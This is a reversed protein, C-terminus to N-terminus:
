GVPIGDATYISTVFNQELFVVFLISSVVSVLIKTVKMVHCQPMTVNNTKRAASM